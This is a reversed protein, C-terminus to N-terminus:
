IKELKLPTPAYAPNAGGGPDAESICIDRKRKKMSNAFDYKDNKGKV